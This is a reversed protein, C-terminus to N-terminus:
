LHDCAFAYLACAGLFLAGIVLFAIDLM